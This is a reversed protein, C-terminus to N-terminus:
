CGELLDCPRMSWQLCLVLINIQHWTSCIVLLIDGCKRLYGFSHWPLKKSLWFFTRPLNKPCWVQLWELRVIYFYLLVFNASLNIVPDSEIILLGLHYFWWYVSRHSILPDFPSRVDVDSRTYSQKLHLEKWNGQRRKHKADCELKRKRLQGLLKSNILQIQTTCKIERSWAAEKEKFNREKL